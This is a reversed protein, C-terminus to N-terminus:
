KEAESVYSECMPGNNGPLITVMPMYCMCIGLGNPTVDGSRHKCDKAGCLISHRMPNAANEVYAKMDDNWRFNAAYDIDTTSSCDPYSCRDGCKSLACRYLVKVGDM